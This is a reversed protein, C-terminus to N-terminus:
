KSRSRFAREKEDVNEGTVNDSDQQFIDKAVQIESGLNLAPLSLETGELEV